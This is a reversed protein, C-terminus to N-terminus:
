FFFPLHFSDSGFLEIGEVTLGVRFEQCLIENEGVFSVASFRDVPVLRWSMMMVSLLLFSFFFFSSM